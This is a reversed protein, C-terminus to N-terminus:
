LFVEPNELSSRTTGLQFLLSTILGGFFLLYFVSIPLFTYSFCSASTGDERYFLVRAFPFISVCVLCGRPDLFRSASVITSFNDNALVM